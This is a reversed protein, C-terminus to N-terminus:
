RPDSDVVGPAGGGSGAPIERERNAATIMYAGSFAALLALAAVLVHWAPRTLAEQFLVIGLIVSIAPNSVAVAAMAPALQGTSLSLQQIGFAALGFGIFLFLIALKFAVLVTEARGVKDAPGLNLLVLALAAILALVLPDTGTFLYQLYSGFSVLMFSAGAIASVYFAWMTLFRWRSGLVDAIPGYGSHGERAHSSVAAFCLASPLVALAALLYAVMALPGSADIVIPSLSFVGGGVMSGVCLAVLAILGIQHRSSPNNSM